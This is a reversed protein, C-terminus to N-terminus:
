ITVQVANGNETTIEATYELNEGVQVSTVSEVGRVGAVGRITSRIAAEFQPQKLNSFVTADFPIGREIDYICEGRRTSCATVTNQMIAPDGDLLVLRGNTVVLDFDIDNKLTSTM